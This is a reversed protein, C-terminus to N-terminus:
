LQVLNNLRWKDKKVGMWESNLWWQIVKTICMKESKSANIEMGRERCASAWETVAWQWEGNNNAMIVISNAHVLAQNDWYGIQINEM